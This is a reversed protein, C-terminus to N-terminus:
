SPAPLPTPPFGSPPALVGPFPLAPIRGSGSDEDQPGPISVIELLVRRSPGVGGISPEDM